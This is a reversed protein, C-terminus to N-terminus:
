LAGCRSCRRPDEGPYNDYFADAMGPYGCQPCSGPQNHRERRNEQKVQVVLGTDKHRMGVTLDRRRNKDTM